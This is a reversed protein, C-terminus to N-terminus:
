QSTSATTTTQAPTAAATEAIKKLDQLGREFDGGVQADMNMFLGAAKMKFDQMGVMSWTVRSNTGDPRILLTTRNDAEWPKFFELQIEVREGPTIATITMRGEGVKDNGTWSYAHGVTGPTGSSSSKMTPDLKQWPSWRSWQGFDTVVPFITAPPAAITASREVSFRDSRSNVIVVFVVAVVVLVGFVKRLM